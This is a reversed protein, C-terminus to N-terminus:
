HWFSRQEEQSCFITIVKNLFNSDGSDLPQVQYDWSIQLIILYHHWKILSTSRLKFSQKIDEM